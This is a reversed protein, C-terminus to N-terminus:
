HTLLQLAFPNDSGNVVKVFLSRGDDGTVVCAIGTSM